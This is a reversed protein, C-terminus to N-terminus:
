LLIHYDEPITVRRQGGYMGHSFHETKGKKGTNEQWTSSATSM